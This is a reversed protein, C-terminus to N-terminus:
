GRNLASFPGIGEWYKPAGDPFTLQFYKEPKDRVLEVNERHHVVAATVIKAAEPDRAILGALSRALWSKLRHM